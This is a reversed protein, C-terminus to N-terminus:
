SAQAFHGGIFVIGEALVWLIAAATLMGTVRHPDRRLRYLVAAALIIGVAPVVPILSVLVANRVDAACSPDPLGDTGCFGQEAWGDLATFVWLVALTLNAM